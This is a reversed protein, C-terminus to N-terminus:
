HLVIISAPLETVSLGATAAITRLGTDIDGLRFSGSVLLDRHDLNALLVPAARYRQMEEIAQWLPLNSITIRGERWELAVHADVAMPMSMGDQGVIAGQGAAVEVPDGEESQRFLVHGEEVTLWEQGNQSRLSFETGTVTVRSVKGLVTFPRVSDPVVDFFAEGRLLTVNRQGGSFDIAIASNSNLTVSSGDPLDHKAVSGSETLFDAQGRLIFEPLQWAAVGAFLIVTALGYQWGPLHWPRERKVPSLM